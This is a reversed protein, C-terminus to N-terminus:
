VFDAINFKRNSGSRKHFAEALLVVLQDQVSRIDKKAERVLLEYTHGPLRFSRPKDKKSDFASM